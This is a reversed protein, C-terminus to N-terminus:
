NTICYSPDTCVVVTAGLDASGGISTWSISDTGVFSASDSDQGLAQHNPDELVAKLVYSSTTSSYYYDSATSPPTPVQTIYNSIATQLAAYDPTIVPYAANDSYYLEVAKQITSMDAVRKTDRAKRQATTLSVIALTALLGIIAIVILLEILTFGKKMGCSCKEGCSGCEGGKFLKKM